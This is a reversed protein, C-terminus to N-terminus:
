TASERSDKSPPQGTIAPLSWLFKLYVALAWTVGCIWLARSASSYLGRISYAESALVRTSDALLAGHLRTTSSYATGLLFTVWILALVAAPPIILKLLRRYGAQNSYALYTLGSLAAVSLGTLLANM